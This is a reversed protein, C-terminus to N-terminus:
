DVFCVLILIAMVFKTKYGFRYYTTVLLSDITKPNQPEEILVISFLREKEGYSILLLICFILFKFIVAINCM